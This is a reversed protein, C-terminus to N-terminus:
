HKQIKMHQWRGGCELCEFGQAVKFSTVPRHFCHPCLTGADIEALQQEFKEIDSLQKARDDM